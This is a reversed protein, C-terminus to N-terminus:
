LMSNSLCYDFIIKDDKAAIVYPQHGMSKLALEDSALNIGRKAKILGSDLDFELLDIVNTKYEKEYTAYVIPGSQNELHGYLEIGDVAWMKEGTLLDFCISKKYALFIVTNKHTKILSFYRGNNTKSNSYEKTIENGPNNWLSKGSNYDVFDIDAIKGKNDLKAVLLGLKHTALVKWSKVKWLVKTEGANDAKTPPSSTISFLLLIALLLSTHKM